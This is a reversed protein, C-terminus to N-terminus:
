TGPRETASVGILLVGGPRLVTATVDRRDIWVRSRRVDPSPNAVVALGRSSRPVLVITNDWTPGLGVDTLTVHLSGVRTATPEGWALRARNGVLVLQPFNAMAPVRELEHLTTSEGVARRLAPVDGVVVFAAGDGRLLDAAETTTVPARMTQLDLQLAYPVGPMYAIPFTEGVASRIASALQQIALTERVQPRRREFFRYQMGFTLLTIVVVAAVMLQLTRPVLNRAARDLERGAILALPPVMPDLLRAPNHPSICFLLLGSLFWCCVFREARREDDGTAPRRFVRWLGVVGPLTWPAFKVAMDGIPKYFRSGPAHEVM